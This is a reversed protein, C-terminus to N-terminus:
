NLQPDEPFNAMVRQLNGQERLVTRWLHEPLTTLVTELTAPAIMWSNHSLEEDLQGANWGSYGLFFKVDTAQVAGLRMLDVMVNLQGGWYLGPLVETADPVAPGITHLFHLSDLQVPGGYHLPLEPPNLEPLADALTLELPKNLMYGVTGDPGHETLLIVARKFNTDRMFPEALLLRGKEADGPRAHVASFDYHIM